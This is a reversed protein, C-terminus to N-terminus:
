LNRGLSNRIGIRCHITAEEESRASAHVFGDYILYVKFLHSPKIHIAPDSKRRAAQIADVGRKTLQISTGFRTANPPESGMLTGHPDEKGRWMIEVLGKAKQFRVGMNYEGWVFEGGPICDHDFAPNLRFVIRSKGDVEATFEEAVWWWGYALSCFDNDRHLANAFDRRTITLSNAGTYETPEGVWTWNAFSPINHEAAVAEMTAMPGPLFSGFANMYESRVLELQGSTEQEIVGGMEGKKSAYRSVTTNPEQSLHWGMGYMEGKGKFKQDKASAGGNMSANNGISQMMTTHEMLIEMVKRQNSTVKEWPTIRVAMPLARDDLMGYTVGPESIWTFDQFEPMSADLPRGLRKQKAEIRTFTDPSRRIDYLKVTNGILNSVTELPMFTAPKPLYDPRGDENVSSGVVVQEGSLISYKEKSPM